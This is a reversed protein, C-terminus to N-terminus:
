VAHGQRRRYDEFEVDFLAGLGLEELELGLNVREGLEHMLEHYLATDPSVGHTGVGLVQALDWGYMWHKSNAM